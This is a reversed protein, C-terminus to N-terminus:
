GLLLRGILGSKWRSAFFQLFRPQHGTYYREVLRIALSVDTPAVTQENRLWALTVAYWRVLLCACVAMATLSALSQGRTLPLRRGLLNFLFAKLLRRNEAREEWDGRVACRAKLDIPMGFLRPDEYVEGRWLRFWTLTRYPKRLFFLTIWSGGWGLGGGGGNPSGCGYAENRPLPQLGPPLPSNERSFPANNASLLLDKQGRGGPPPPNPHPPIQLKLLHRAQRLAEDASVDPDMFVIRLRERWAAYASWDATRFWDVPVRAPLTELLDFAAENAVELGLQWTESTKPTPNGPVECEASEPPKPLIPRFALLLTDSIKKCAASTEYRIDEGARNSPPVGSAPMKVAAFPFRRCEKPKLAAGEHVEVLCRRDEGLFVCMNQDTLPIRYLDATMPTLARRTAALRERVWPRDLLIRAKDAELPINWSSCCDGCQSCEFYVSETTVGTQTRM